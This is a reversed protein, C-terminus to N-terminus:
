DKTSSTRPFNLTGFEGHLQRAAVDWAMAAEQIDHFSGLYLDKKNHRIRAAFRKGGKSGNWGRNLTVGRFPLNCSRNRRSNARNQGNTAIRLNEKRNDLTNLNIHDVDEDERVGAIYRHALITRIAGTSRDTRAAYVYRNRYIKAYWKFASLREYDVDDVEMFYGNTLPIKM